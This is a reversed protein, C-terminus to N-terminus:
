MRAMHSEEQGLRGILGAPSRPGRPGWCATCPLLLSSAPDTSCSPWRQQLASSSAVGASWAEPDGVAQTVYAVSHGPCRKMWRRDLHAARVRSRGRCPADAASPHRMDASEQGGHEPDPPCQQGGGHNPPVTALGARHTHQGSLITRARDVLGRLGQVGGGGGLSRVSGLRAKYPWMRARADVWTPRIGGYLGGARRRSPVPQSSPPPQGPPAPSPLAWPM